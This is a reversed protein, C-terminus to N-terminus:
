DRERKRQPEREIKEDSKWFKSYLICPSNVNIEKEREIQPEREIEKM